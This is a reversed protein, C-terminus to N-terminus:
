DRGLEGRARALESTQGVDIHEGSISFAGVAEQRNLCDQILDPMTLSVDTPIRTVVQPDVVYVGSNTPWSYTPKERISTIRAGETEVVGFPVTHSYPNIGVTAMYEGCSHFELLHSVSFQTVLDGNLIITPVTPKQPLLSLSGATGLPRTEKLYEIRCGYKEGNEFHRQIVDSLYNVSLFIRRIGCGSLHLVIRELIPRGAVLLMPKPIDNTLPRLRMGQGGAMIVAWNPREVAGLIEHLLHLGLLRGAGDVIPIQEITRSQMIDLVEARGAEPGVSVFQEKVFPALAADLSAGALLARRADGDTLVGKMRDHGDTVLAVHAEGRELAWLADRLSGYLPVRCLDFRFAM